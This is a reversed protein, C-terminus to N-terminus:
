IIKRVRRQGKDGVAKMIYVGSSLGSTSYEHRVGAAQKMEKWVIEGLLNYLIISASESVEVNLIGASPIPFCNLAFSEEGPHIVGSKNRLLYVGGQRSGVLMSAYEGEFLVGFAISSGFGFGKHSSNDWKKNVINLAKSGELGTQHNLMDEIISLQGKSNSIILENVGDHDIDFLAPTLNRNEFKATFGALNE